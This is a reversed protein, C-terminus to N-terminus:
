VYKELVRELSTANQNSSLKDKFGDLKKLAENYKLENKLYELARVTINHSKVKNQILEPFYSEGLILNVMGINKVGKILLVGLHYSLPSLKYLIVMPIKLLALEVTLTGSCALAFDIDKLQSMNEKVVTKIPLTSKVAAAYHAEDIHSLKFLYFRAPIVESIKKAAEIMPPLLRKIENERSGPFLGIKVLNKPFQRHVIINQAVDVLPHGVYHACVGHKEYWSVEFPFIVLMERVYKKIKRVRGERWAWLQPSVYYIIPIGQRKLHKFFLFNFDPLDILIAVDIREKYILKKIYRYAKFIHNIKKFVEVGGTVSLSKHSIFRYPKLREIKDGGMGVFNLNQYKDKLKSILEAGYLDASAEGAIILVTKVSEM